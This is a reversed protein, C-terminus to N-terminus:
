VTQKLQNLKSILIQNGSINHLSSVFRLILDSSILVLAPRKKAGTLDTFPFPILVIDGKNM